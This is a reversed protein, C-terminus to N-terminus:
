KCMQCYYKGDKNRITVGVHKGTKKSIVKVGAPAGCKCCRKVEGEKIKKLRIEENMRDTKRKILMANLEYQRKKEEVIYSPLILDSM